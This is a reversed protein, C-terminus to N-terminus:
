CSEEDDSVPSIIVARCIPCDANRMMWDMLCEVHYIHGCVSKSHCIEDSSTYDEMCISCIRSSVIKTPPDQEEAPMIFNSISRLAWTFFNDDSGAKIAHGERGSHMVEDELASFKESCDKTEERTSPVAEPVGLEVTEM